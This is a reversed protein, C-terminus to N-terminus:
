VEDDALGIMECPTKSNGALCGFAGASPIGVCYAYCTDRSKCGTDTDCCPSFSNCARKALLDRSEDGAGAGARTIVDDYAAAFDADHAALV